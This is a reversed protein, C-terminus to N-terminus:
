LAERVPEGLVSNEWLWWHGYECFWEQSCEKDQEGSKAINLIM